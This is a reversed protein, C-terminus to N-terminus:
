RPRVSPGAMSDPSNNWQPLNREREEHRARDKALQVVSASVGRKMWFEKSTGNPRLSDWFDDARTITRSSTRIEDYDVSIIPLDGPELCEVLTTTHFGNWCYKQWLGMHALRKVEDASTVIKLAGSTLEFQYAAHIDNAFDLLMSDILHFRGTEIAEKARNHLAALRSGEIMDRVDARLDAPLIRDCIQDVRANLRKVPNHEITANATKFEDRNM